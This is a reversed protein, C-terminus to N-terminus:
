APCRALVTPYDKERAIVLIDESPRYVHVIGNAGSLAFARQQDYEPGIKDAGLGIATFYSEPETYVSFTSGAVLTFIQSFSADLPEAAITLTVPNSSALALVAPSGCARETDAGYTEIGTQSSPGGLRVWKGAINALVAKGYEGNVYGLQSKGAAFVDFARQAQDAISDAASAPFSLLAFALITSLRM